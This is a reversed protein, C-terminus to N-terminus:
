STKRMWIKCCKGFSVVSCNEEVYPLSIAGDPRLKLELNTEAEVVSVFIVVV